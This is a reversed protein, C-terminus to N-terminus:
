MSGASDKAKGSSAQVEGVDFRMHTSSHWLRKLLSLARIGAGGHAEINAKRKDALFMWGTARFFQKNAPRHSQPAVRSSRELWGALSKMRAGFGRGSQVPNACFFLRMWYRRPKRASNRGNPTPSALSGGRARKNRVTGPELKLVESLEHETLLPGYTQMLYAATLFSM